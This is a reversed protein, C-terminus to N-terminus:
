HLAPAIGLQVLIGLTDLTGSQAALTGGQVTWLDMGLVSARRRTPRLGLFRGRQTGSFRYRVAVRGGQSVCDLVEVQGDPFAARLGGLWAVLGAAGPKLGPLAADSSFGPALLAALAAADGQNLARYFALAVAQDADVAAAPSLAAAAAPLPGSQATGTGQAPLGAALLAALVAGTFAKM